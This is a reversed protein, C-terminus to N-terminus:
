RGDSANTHARVTLNGDELKMWDWTTANTFDLIEATDDDSSKNTATQNASWTTNGDWSITVQLVPENSTRYWEVGVKVLFVEEPGIDIGYNFWETDNGAVGGGTGSFEIVEWASESPDAGGDTLRTSRVTTASLLEVSLQSAINDSSALGTLSYSATYRIPSWAFSNSLNVETITDDDTAATDGTW